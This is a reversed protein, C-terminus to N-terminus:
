YERNPVSLKRQERSYSNQVFRIVKRVRESTQERLNMSFNSEIFQNRPPICHGRAIRIIRHSDDCIATNLLCSTGTCNISRRRRKFARQERCAIIHLVYVVTCFFHGHRRFISARDIGSRILRACFYEVSGGDSLGTDKINRLFCLIKKSM